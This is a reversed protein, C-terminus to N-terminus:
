LLNRRNMDHLAALLRQYDAGHLAGMHGVRFVREKLAGGNPCVCLDYEEMLTQFVGHASIGERTCLATVGNSPHQSLLRLPLAEIQRRFAAADAAIQQQEALLGGGSLEHLRAAVQLMVSETLTYPPQGRKGNLLAAQLSLYTCSPQLRNIREIARQSLAVPAIGPACALAKQSATLVADA